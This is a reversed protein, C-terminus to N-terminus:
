IKPQNSLLTLIADLKAKPIDKLQTILKNYEIPYPISDDFLDAISIDLQNCLDVIVPLTPTIKGSVVKHVYDPSKGIAISLQKLSLNKSDALQIIRNQMTSRIEKYEM